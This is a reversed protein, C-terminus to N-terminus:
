EHRNCFKSDHFRNISYITILTSKHVYFPM